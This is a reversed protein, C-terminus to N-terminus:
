ANFYSCGVVSNDIEFYIKIVSISHSVEVTPMMRAFHHKSTILFEYQIVNSSLFSATGGLYFLGAFISLALKIHSSFAQSSISAMQSSKCNSPTGEPAIDECCVLSLM